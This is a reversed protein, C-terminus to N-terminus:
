TKNNKAYLEIMVGKTDILVLLSGLGTLCLFVVTAGSYHSSITPLRRIGDETSYYGGQTIPDLGPKENEGSFDM